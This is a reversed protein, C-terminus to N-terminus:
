NQESKFSMFGEKQAHRPDFTQITGIIRLNTKGPDKETIVCSIKSM